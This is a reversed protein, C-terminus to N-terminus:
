RAATAGAATPSPRGRTSASISTRCPNAATTSRPITGIAQGKTVKAGVGVWPAVHGYVAYFPKGFKDTHKVVIVGGKTSPNLSGFGNYQGSIVVVGDAVASVATGVSATYDAGNHYSSGTWYGYGIYGGTQPFSPIPKAYGSQAAQITIKAHDYTLGEQGFNNSENTEIVQNASDTKMVVFFQTGSWGAPPAAPLKLTTTFMPGYGQGSIGGHAYSTAGNGLALLLDDSSGVSDRSLYWQVQFPGSAGSGTNRIQAQQVTIVDGWKASGTVSNWYGSLDVSGSNAGTIQLKDNDYTLGLGGFNNAENTEAVKNTADTKMVVYWTGNTGGAPPQAPLKLNPYFMTGLSNGAISPHSYRSGWGDALTLLLDDSSGYADKSLYFEVDFPGSAANGLNRIQAQKLGFTQGWQGSDPAELWWGELDVTGSSGGTITLKHHDYTSGISGFNNAENSEFVKDTADTKMILYFQDGAFGAPPSAPLQLKPYFAAGMGNAAIGPHAYRVGGGDARNLRIDDSSGYQDKSLYFEVDFSGTSPTGANLIQAKQVDVVGGWNAQPPALLWWGQLDAALLVKPELAEFLLRRSGQAKKQKRKSKAASGLKLMKMALGEEEFYAVSVV